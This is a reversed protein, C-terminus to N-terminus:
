LCSTVCENLKKWKTRKWHDIRKLREERSARLRKEMQKVHRHLADNTTKLDLIDEQFLENEVTSAEFINNMENFVDPHVLSDQSSHKAQLKSVINM